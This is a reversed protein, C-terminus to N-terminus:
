LNRQRNARERLRSRIADDPLDRIEDKVKEAKAVTAADKKVADAKASKRASRGGYWVGGGIAALVALILTIADSM